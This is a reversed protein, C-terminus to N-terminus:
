PLVGKKDAAISRGDIGSYVARCAQRSFSDSVMTEHKRRLQSDDVIQRGCRNAQWGSTLQFCCPTGDNRRESEHGAELASSSASNEPEGGSLCPSQRGLQGRKPKWNM